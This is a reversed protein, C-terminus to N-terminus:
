PSLNVEDEVNEDTGSDALELVGATAEGPLEEVERLKRVMARTRIDTQDLTKSATNLQKKVKGLVNGFKGFEM